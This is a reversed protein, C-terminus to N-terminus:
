NVCACAQEDWHHADDCRATVGCVSGCDGVETCLTKCGEDAACARCSWECASAQEVVSPEVDPREPASAPAEVSTPGLQPAKVEMGMGGLVPAIALGLLLAAVGVIKHM